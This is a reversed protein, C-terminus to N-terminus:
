LREKRSLGHRRKVIYQGKIESVGIRVEGMGGRWGWKIMM